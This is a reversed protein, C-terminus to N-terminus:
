MRRKTEGEYINELDNSSIVERIQNKLDVKNIYSLFERRVEGYKKLFDEVSFEDSNSVKNKQGSFSWESEVVTDYFERIGFPYKDGMTYYQMKRVNFLIELMTEAPIPKNLYNSISHVCEIMQENTHNYLKLLGSPFYKSILIPKGGVLQSLYNIQSVMDRPVEEIGGNNLRETFEEVLYDIKYPMKKEVYCYDDIRDADNKTMAFYRYSYLYYNDDERAKSGWTPDFYYIGDIGYKDDKVYILNRAHGSSSNICRLIVDKCDIDLLYLLTKFIAAYGVCVIKDGLLSSTLNRSIMKDQGEDVEVYVKNRVIDYVYMIKEMVSFNFKKVDDLINSIYEVTEKYESFTILEDNGEVNFYLNSTNSGFADIIENLFSVDLDLGIEFVIKKNQLIPNNKVYEAIKKPTALFEICELDMLLSIRNKKFEELFDSSLLDGSIM